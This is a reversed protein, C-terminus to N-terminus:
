RESCQEGVSRGGVHPVINYLSGQLDRKFTILRQRVWAEVRALGAQVPQRELALMCVDDISIEVSARGAKDEKLLNKSEAFASRLFRFGSTCFSM